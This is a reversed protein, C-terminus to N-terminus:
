SPQLAKKQLEQIKEIIFQYDPNYMKQLREFCNAADGDISVVSVKLLEHRQALGVKKMDKVSFNKGDTTEVFDMQASEVREQDAATLLTKIVVKHEGVPTVIEEQFKPLQM